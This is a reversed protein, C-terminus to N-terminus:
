SKNEKKLKAPIGLVPHTSRVLLRIDVLELKTLFRPPKAVFYGGSM